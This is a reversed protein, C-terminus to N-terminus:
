RGQDGRAPAQSIRRTGIENLVEVAARRAYENEDKLVDVLYRSTDPHNAKIVVDVAKNQVESGPDRLLQCMLQIDIPGDLRALALLAAQRILKNPDKLQNQIARSVAPQNFRALINIIHMRAVPDKGDVRALLDPVASTRSRPWSAFCRQKKTRNRCTLPPWFNVCASVHKQAAIVDLIAPKSMGEQGLLELLVSPPYNKGGSLAWAIGAVARPNAESLGKALLPITKADVLATLVEVYALTERSIRHRCHKSSRGRGGCKGHRRAQQAGQSRQREHYRREGQYRRDPARGEDYRSSVGHLVPSAAPPENHWLAKM